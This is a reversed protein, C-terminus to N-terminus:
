DGTGGRVWRIGRGIWAPALFPIALVAMFVGVVAFAAIGAVLVPAGIWVWFAAGFAWGWHERHTAERRLAPYWRAGVRRGLYVFPFCLAATLGAGLFFLLLQAAIGLLGFLLDSM